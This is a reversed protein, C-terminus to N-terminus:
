PIFEPDLVICGQEILYSALSDVDVRQTTFNVEPGLDNKDLKIFNEHQESMREAEDEDIWYYQFIRKGRITGSLLGYIDYNELLFKRVLFEITVEYPVIVIKYIGGERYDQLLYIRNNFVKNEKGLIL